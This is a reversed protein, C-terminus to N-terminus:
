SFGGVGKGGQNSTLRCVDIVNCHWCYTDGGYQAFVFYM